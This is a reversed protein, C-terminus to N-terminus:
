EPSINEVFRAFLRSDPKRGTRHAEAHYAKRAIEIGEAFPVVRGTDLPRLLSARRDVERLYEAHLAGLPVRVPKEWGRIVRRIAAEAADFDSWSQFEDAYVEIHLDTWGHGTAALIGALRYADSETM